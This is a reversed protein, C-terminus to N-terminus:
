GSLAPGSMPATSPWISGRDVANLSQLPIGLDAPWCKGKSSPTSGTIGSLRAPASSQRCPGPDDARRQVWFGTGVWGHCRSRSRGAAEAWGGKKVQDQLSLWHLNSLPRSTAVLGTGSMGPHPLAAPASRSSCNGPELACRPAALLSMWQSVEVRQLLSSPDSVPQDAASVVLDGSPLGALNPPATPSCV